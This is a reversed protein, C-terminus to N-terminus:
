KYGISGHVQQHRKM